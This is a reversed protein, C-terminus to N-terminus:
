SSPGFWERIDAWTETFSIDANAEDIWSLDFAAIPLPRNRTDCKSADDELVQHSRCPIPRADYVSCERDILFPCPAGSFRKTNERM